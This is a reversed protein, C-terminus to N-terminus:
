HISRSRGDAQSAAHDVPRPKSLALGSRRLGSSKLSLIAKTHLQCVRSETVNLVRGIEKMTLEECYYLILVLREKKPLRDIAKSLQARRHETVVIALPDPHNSDVLLRLIKRGDTEQVGLDDLSILVARQACLLYESLESVSLNM